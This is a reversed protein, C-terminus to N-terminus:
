TIFQFLGGSCNQNLSAKKKDKQLSPLHSETDEHGLFRPLSRVAAFSPFLQKEM